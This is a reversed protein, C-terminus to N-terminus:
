KSFQSDEEFNYRNCCVNIKHHIFKSILEPNSNRSLLIPDSLVIYPGGSDFTDFSLVLEFVVVYVKDIEIFDNIFGKVELKDAFHFISSDSNNLIFIDHHFIDRFYTIKNISM